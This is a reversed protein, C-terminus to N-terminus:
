IIDNEPNASTGLALLEITFTTGQGLSSAAGIRGGHATVIGHVVALGLGTGEGVPKTTFFPEFIRRLTEEDMGRGNDSVSLIIRAPLGAEGDSAVSLGITVTGSGSGIAHCANTVLNVIVQQIAGADCLAPPVEAIDADLRISAPVVSRLLAVSDRVVRDLAVQRKESADDRSFTLIRSVLDRAQKATKVVIDLRQREPSGAPMAANTLQTLALIPSLM